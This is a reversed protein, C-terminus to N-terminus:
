RWPKMGQWDDPFGYDDLSCDEIQPFDLLLSISRESWDSEPALHSMLYRIVCVVPYVKWMTPESCQRLHELEPIEWLRKTGIRKTVHRNYLRNHHAVVNRLEGIAEMWNNFALHTPIGILKTIEIRDELLIMQSFERLMGFDWIEVATWIPLEGDYKEIFHKKFGESSANLLNRQRKTFTALASEGPEDSQGKQIIKDCHDGLCDRTIHAFAGRKGVVYAMHVRIAVEIREIAEMLMIRLRRDFSHLSLVEEFSHGPLFTSLRIGDDGKQRWEYWFGSLRYYGIALLERKAVDEDAIALGRARIREIQEEITLHPKSYKM